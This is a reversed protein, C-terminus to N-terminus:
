GEMPLSVDSRYSRHADEFRFATPSDPSHKDLVRFRECLLGPAYSDGNRATYLSCLGMLKIKVAPEFFSRFAEYFLKAWWGM